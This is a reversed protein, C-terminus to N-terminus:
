GVKVKLCQSQSFFHESFNIGDSTNTQSFIMLKPLGIRMSFDQFLSAIDIKTKICVIISRWLGIRLILFFCDLGPLVTKDIINYRIKILREMSLWRQNQHHGLGVLRLDTEFIRM